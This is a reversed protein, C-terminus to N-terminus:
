SYSLYREVFVEITNAFCLWYFALFLSFQKEITLIFHANVCQQESANFTPVYRFSSLIQFSVIM